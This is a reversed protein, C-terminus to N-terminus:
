ERTRPTPPEGPPASVQRETREVTYRLERLHERVLSEAAASDGARVAVVIAQHEDYDRQRDTILRRLFQQERARVELLSDVIEYLVKNGSSRALERHFYLHPRPDDPSRTATELALELRELDAEDRHQAALAAIGPEIVLRAEVLQIALEAYDTIMSNPNPMLTRHVGAGVYVGSGHRLEVADTAQLRRLAERMTPTTVSFQAALVKVTPLPDGQNLGERNILSLVGSALRDSLTEPRAPDGSLLGGAIAGAASGAMAGPTSGAPKAEHM